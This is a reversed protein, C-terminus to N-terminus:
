CLLKRFAFKPVLKCGLSEKFNCLGLNPQSNLSSPGIDLTLFGQKHLYDFVKFAIFNMSKLRSNDPMDGWYIVQAIKESVQFVIAASVPAGEYETVFFYSRLLQCTECVQEFTMRLPYGKSQRNLRIVDYVMERDELSDCERFSMGKECAIRLNKRSSQILSQPYNENFRSLDFHHNLDVNSVDFNNCYLANMVKSTMTECYFMPPLTINIGTVGLEHAYSELSKVALSLSELGVNNKVASFGGFPASFPTHLENDKIGAILGLRVKDDAFLLCKLGDVKLRNLDNFKPSLYIAAYKGFTRDYEQSSVEFVNM